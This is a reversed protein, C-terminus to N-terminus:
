PLTLNDGVTDQHVMDKVVAFMGTPNLDSQFWEPPQLAFSFQSTAKSTAMLRPLDEAFHVYGCVYICM